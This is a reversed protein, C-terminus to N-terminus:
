DRTYGKISFGNGTRQITGSVSPWDYIEWSYRGKINEVNLFDHKFTLYMEGYM